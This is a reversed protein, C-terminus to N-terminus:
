ANPVIIRDKAINQVQEPNGLHAAVRGFRKDTLTAETEVNAEDYFKFIDGVNLTKVYTDVPSVEVPEVVSPVSVQAAKMTGDPNRIGLRVEDAFIKREEIELKKLELASNSSEKQEMIRALRDVSSSDGAVLDERLRLGTQALQQRMAQPIYAGTNGKAASDKVVIENKQANDTATNRYNRCSKLMDQGISRYKAKKAEDWPQNKIDDIRSQFLLELGQTTDPLSKDGTLVEDWDPFFFYQAATREEKTSNILATIEVVGGVGHPETRRVAKVIDKSPYVKNFVLHNSRKQKFEGDALASADSGLFGNVVHTKVQGSETRVSQEYSKSWNARTEKPLMTDWEAIFRPELATFQCRYVMYNNARLTRTGPLFIGGFQKFALENKEADTIADHPFFLVRTTEWQAIEKNAISSDITDPMAPILMATM